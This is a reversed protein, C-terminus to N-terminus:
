AEEFWYHAPVTLFENLPIGGEGGDEGVLLSRRPSFRDAFEDMGRLSGMKVGSKVEIAVIRTGRQLVFDVSLCDPVRYCASKSWQTIKSLLTILAFGPLTFKSLFDGSM